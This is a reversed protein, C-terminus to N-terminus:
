GCAPRNCPQLPTGGRLVRIVEEAARRRLEALAADSSFAVHPTVIVNPHALLEAPVRPEEELVDLAAGGVHGSQLAAILAATDIIAGRSVNVIFAGRRLLALRRADLLHRSDADLPLHLLLADCRGLLTDLALFELGAADAPPHRTHVLVSMGFAALLRATRRGTRGYGIVGCSLTGLRRLRASAPDWRGAHVDRDFRVVGRLLALLLSVAHDSVEQTCYDPVNTVWIGRRSAAEVAINDLGVGLRGILRLRASAAVARATLPAWCTLIAAPQHREVLAEIDAASGPVAPGSALAFGAAELLSRELAVDPWAHDTILVLPRDAAADRHMQRM